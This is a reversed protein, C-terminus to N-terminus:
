VNGELLGAPKSYSGTSMGAESSRSTDFVANRDIQAPQIGDLHAMILRDGRYTHASPPLVDIRLKIRQVFADNTTAIAQHTNTPQGSATTYGM